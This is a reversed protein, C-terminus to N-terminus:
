KKVKSILPNEFFHYSMSALLITLGFTLYLALKPYIWQVRQLSLIVPLHWLYIGFSITGLYRLPWLTFNLVGRIELCCFVLLILGCTIAVLTHYFVIMLNSDWYTTNKWYISLAVITAIISVVLLVFFGFGSKLKANVFKSGYESRVLRALLIGVLFEDLMGPLQTAAVFQTFTGLEQSPPVFITVGYRWLWSISLFIILIKWFNAVKLWPAIIMILLYFQMETGLSWNVGNIGGHLKPFLNHIFILHSGLNNFLNEFMFSPMVFILFVAMTLYHLPVIRYLRRLIFDKRFNYGSKELGSFASLAIVFGSIVFFLDVGIWGVRFWVLLGERPFSHWQYLEIVHYVLVSIAAFGRLIDVNPYHYKQIPM